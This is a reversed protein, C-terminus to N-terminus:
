DNKVHVDMQPYPIEIGKETFIDHVKKTLNGMVTWYDETKTWARLQIGVCSDGLETIAVAPAPDKLILNDNKMIEMAVNIANSIDSGYALGVNIDARRTPMRTFNVIPSGWVDKNSIMILKNDPTILETCMIEIKNVKGTYGNTTIVDGKDFPRVLAIWFGSAINTMTDQLGFGLVLGIVASLAIFIAGVEVGVFSVAVLFVTIILLIDLFRILFDCLIEPLRAKYLSKKTISIIISKVIFGVIIAVIAILIQFPTIGILPLPAGLMTIIDAM